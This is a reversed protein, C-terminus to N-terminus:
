VVFGLGMNLFVGEGVAVPLRGAMSEPASELRLKRVCKMM